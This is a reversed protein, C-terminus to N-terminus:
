SRSSSPGQCTDSWALPMSASLASPAETDSPGASSGIRKRRQPVSAVPRHGGPLLGGAGGTGCRDAVAVAVAMAVAMAQAQARDGALAAAM